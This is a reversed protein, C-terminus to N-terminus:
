RSRHDRRRAGFACEGDVWAALDGGLSEAAALTCRRAAAGNGPLNDCSVVTVPGGGSRRRADLAAALVEFARGGEVYGSETITMSIIAVHPDALRAVVAAPEDGAGM